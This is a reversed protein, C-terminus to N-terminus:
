EMVSLLDTRYHQWYQKRKEVNDPVYWQLMMEMYERRGRHRNLIANIKAILQAGWDNSTCSIAARGFPTPNEIIDACVFQHQFSQTASLYRVTSCLELTYDSHGADIIKLIDGSLSLGSFTKVRNNAKLRALLEDLHQYPRGTDLIFREPTQRLLAQLSVPGHRPVPSDNRSVVNYNYYINTPISINRGLPLDVDYNSNVTCLSKQQALHKYLQSATVFHTRHEVHNLRQSVFTQIRDGLGQSQHIGNKITYPPFDLKYWDLTDVDTKAHSAVSLVWLWM